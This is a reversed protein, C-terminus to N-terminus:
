SQLGGRPPGALTLLQRLLKLPVRGYGVVMVLSHRSIDSVQGRAFGESVKFITRGRNQQVESGLLQKLTGNM